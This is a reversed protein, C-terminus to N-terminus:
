ELNVRLVGPLPGRRASHREELRRHQAALSNGSQDGVDPIRKVIHVFQDGGIRDDSTERGVAIRLATVAVASSQPLKISYFTKNKLFTKPNRKKEQVASKIIEFHYIEKNRNRVCNQRLQRRLKQKKEKQPSTL